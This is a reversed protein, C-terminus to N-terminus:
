GQRGKPKQRSKQGKPCWNMERSEWNRAVRRKHLFILLLLCYIVSKIVNLDLDKQSQPLAYM